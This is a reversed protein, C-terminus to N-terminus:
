VLRLLLLMVSTIPWINIEILLPRGLNWKQVKSVDNYCQFCTPIANYGVKTVKSITNGPPTQKTLLEKAIEEPLDFVAGQVQFLSTPKNCIFSCM